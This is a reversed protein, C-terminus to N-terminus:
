TAAVEDGNGRGPRPRRGALASGAEQVRHAADDGISTRDNM